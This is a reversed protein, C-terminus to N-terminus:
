VSNWLKKIEDASEKVVTESGNDFIIKGFNFKIEEIIDRGQSRLNEVYSPSQLMTVTIDYFQIIHSTNYHSLKNTKTLTKINEYLDYYHLIDNDKIELNEDLRKCCCDLLIHYVPTLGIVKEYKIKIKETEIEYITSM